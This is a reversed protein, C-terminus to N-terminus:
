RALKNSGLTPESVPVKLDGLWKPRLVLMTADQALFGHLQKNHYASERKAETWAPAFDARDKIDSDPAKM